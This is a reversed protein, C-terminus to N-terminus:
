KEELNVIESFKLASKKQWADLTNKCSELEATLINLKERFVAEDEASVSIRVKSELEPIEQNELSFIRRRADTIIKPPRGGKKGNEKSAIIKARSTSKGNYSYLSDIWFRLDKLKRGVELGIGELEGNRSEQSIEFIRSSQLELESITRYIADTKKSM